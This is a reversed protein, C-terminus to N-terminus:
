SGNEKLKRGEKIFVYFGVVFGVIIGLVIFLPVSEYRKDLWVGALLFIVPFFAITISLSSAKEMAKIWDLKGSKNKKKKSAM